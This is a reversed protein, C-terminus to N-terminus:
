SEAPGRDRDDLIATLRRPAVARYAEEIIEAIDNWHGEDPSGNPGVDLFVGVWGRAGVYPPVFFRARDREVWDGQAGAPAAAWLAIRDDHHHDAFTAFQPAKRVFWAPEGHSTRETAEPMSMCVLRVRALVSGDPM